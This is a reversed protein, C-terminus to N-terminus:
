SRRHSVHAESFFSVPAGGVDAPRLRARLKIDGLRPDFPSGSFTDKEDPFPLDLRWLAVRGGPLAELRVTTRSSEGPTDHDTNQRKLEARWRTAQAHAAGALLSLAVALIAAGHFRPRLAGQDHLEHVEGGSRQGGLSRRYEFRLEQQGSRSAQFYWSETGGGTKGAAQADPTYEAAALRTLANSGSTLLSWAYGTGRNAGLRVVIREGPSVDIARGSDGEALVTAHYLSSSAAAGPLDHLKADLLRLENDGVRLFNRRSESREGQLQYVTAERDSASGRTVKVGGTKEVTRDGDRTGIYTERLEYRDAYLM